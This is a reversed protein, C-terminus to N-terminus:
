AADRFTADDVFHKRACIDAILKCQSEVLASWDDYRRRRRWEVGRVSDDWSAGSNIRVGGFVTLPSTEYM